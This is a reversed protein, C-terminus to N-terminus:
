NYLPNQVLLGYSVNIQTQPIPLLLDKPGQFTVSYASLVTEAEGFRILDYLRQNEFALEARRQDLLMAKTITTNTVPAAFARNRVKDYYLIAQADSTANATGMIAETYMLYVDALRLVIWDNGALRPASSTALWKGNQLVMAANINTAKRTDLPDASMFTTFNPTVYNLGGAASMEYSFDQSETTSDAAYPIAFLIEDNKEVYFVDRYVPRLSYAPDTVLTTLLPLAEAYKKQTLYVKALIGQAAQKSARGFTTASKLPLKEIAEQLDNEILTYADAAPRKAFFERDTNTIVQDIVPVDGFARVLNFHCLARAFKAEGIYNEKKALDSMVDINKLVLNSRYIVNYNVSWYGNVVSNTPAVDFTELQKYEGEGLNSKANDSRMEALTFERLPVTQLGDYIAIVAGLVDADTNFFQEESIASIPALDLDEKGCSATLGIVAM